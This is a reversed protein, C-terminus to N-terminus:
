GANARYQSPHKSNFFFFFFFMNLILIPEHICAYKLTGLQHPLTFHHVASSTPTIFPPSTILLHSPHAHTEHEWPLVCQENSIEPAAFLSGVFVPSYIIVSFHGGSLTVYTDALIGPSQHSNSFLGCLMCSHLLAVLSYQLQTNWKFVLILKDGKDGSRFSNTMRRRLRLKMWM